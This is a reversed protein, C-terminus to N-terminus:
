RRPISRSLTSSSSVTGTSSVTEENEIKEEVKVETKIEEPKVEEEIKVERLQRATVVECVGRSLWREVEGVSVDHVSDKVYGGWEDVMDNPIKPNELFRIKPM